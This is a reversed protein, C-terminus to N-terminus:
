ESMLRSIYHHFSIRIEEPLSVLRCRNLDISDIVTMGVINQLGHANDNLLIVPISSLTSMGMQICTQHVVLLGFQITSLAMLQEQSHCLTIHWGGTVTLVLKLEVAQKTPPALLVVRRLPM